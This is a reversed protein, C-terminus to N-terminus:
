PLLSIEFGVSNEDPRLMDIELQVPRNPPVTALTRLDGRLYETPEFARSATVHGRVDLLTVVISPFRQPISATNQLTIYATLVGEIDPKPDINGKVTLEELNLYPKHTCPLPECLTATVAQFWSKDRLFNPQVFLIEAVLLLSLGVAGFTWAKSSTSFFGTRGSDTDIFYDPSPEETHEIEDEYAEVENEISAEEVADLATDQDDSPTEESHLASVRHAIDSSPAEDTNASVQDELEPDAAAEQFTEEASTTVPEEISATDPEGSVDAVISEHDDKDSSESNAEEKVEDEASTNSTSEPHSQEPERFRETAEIVNTSLEGSEKSVDRNLPFEIIEDTTSPQKISSNNTDLEDLDQKSDKSFEISVEDDPTDLQNPENDDAFESASEEVIHEIQENIETDDTFSETSDQETTNEEDSFSIETNDDIADMWPEHDDNAYIPAEDSPSLEDSTLDPSDPDLDKLADLAELTDVTELVDMLLAERAEPDLPDDLEIAVDIDDKSELEEIEQANVELNDQDIEQPAPDDSKLIQSTPENDETDALSKVDARSIRKGAEPDYGGLIVPGDTDIEEDYDEFQETEIGKSKQIDDDVSSAPIDVASDQQGDSTISETDESDFLHTQEVVFHDKANFIELCGGCRVKGDAADLQLQGIHFATKCFPCQTVSSSNSM